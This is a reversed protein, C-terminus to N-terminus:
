ILHITADDFVKIQVDKFNYTVDKAAFRKGDDWLLDNKLHFRFEKGNDVIEWSSAIAPLLQGDPGISVLGHSIKNIIEEPVNNLDYNGVMGVVEKKSFLFKNLVSSFSVLSIVIFFSIFFSLAIMKINKKTFELIFWYYYRFTKNTLNM